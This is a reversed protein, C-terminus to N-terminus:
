MLIMEWKKKKNNKKKLKEKEAWQSQTQVPQCKANSASIFAQREWLEIYSYISPHIFLCCKTQFQLNFFYSFSNIDNGTKSLLLLALLHANRTIKKVNRKWRHCNLHNVKMFQACDARANHKSFWCCCKAHCWRNSNLQNIQEIRLFIWVFIGARTDILEVWEYISRIWIEFPNKCVNSWQIMKYNTNIHDRDLYTNLQSNVRHTKKEWM